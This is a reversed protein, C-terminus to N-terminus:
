VGSLYNRNRKGICASPDYKYIRKRKSQDQRLDSYGGRLLMQDLYIELIEGKKLQLTVDKLAVVGPYEKRIHELELVYEESMNKGRSLKM